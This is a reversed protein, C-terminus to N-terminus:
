RTGIDHFIDDSDGVFELYSVSDIFHSLEAGVIGHRKPNSGCNMLGHKTLQEEFYKRFLCFVGRFVLLIEAPQLLSVLAEHLKITQRTVVTISHSPTPPKPQWNQLSSRYVDGMINILKSFIQNMHDQIDTELNNIQDLLLHQSKPLQMTFINRVWPLLQLVVSLSQSAIGLHKATITKLGINKIAGAKLVLHCTGENFHKLNEVTKTLIDKSMVPIDMVCQCYEVVIKIVLLLTSTVIYKKGSFLLSNKPPDGVSNYSPRAVVESPSCNKVINDVMRQFDAPVDAAVWRETELLLKINTLREQHFQKVLERSQGVLSARIPHSSKNTLKECTVAFNEVLRSLKIHNNQDLRENAATHRQQRLTLIKICQSQAIECSTILVDNSEAMMRTYDAESLLASVDPDKQSNLTSKAHDSFTELLEEPVPKNTASTIVCKILKNTIGMKTLLKTIGEFVKEILMVATVPPLSRIQEDLKLDGEFNVDYLQEAIIQKIKAKMMTNSESKYAQLFNVNKRRLLGFLVCIIRDTDDEIESFTKDDITLTSLTFKVFDAEIMNYIMREMECLQVDLHRFSKIGNLDDHLVEQTTTILDLAGVFDSQSLLLQITPQAQKVTSMLVLKEHCQKYRERLRHLHLIQLSQKNLGTDVASLQSRLNQIDSRIYRADESLREQSSITEFFKHSKIDVQEGLKMEVKDLCHSLKEQLLKTSRQPLGANGVFTKRDKQVEIQTQSEFQSQPLVYEFTEPDSLRFDPKLFIPDIDVHEGSKKRARAIAAMEKEKARVKKYPGLLYKLYPIFHEPRVDPPLHKSPLVPTPVFYSGWTKTFMDADYNKSRRAPDNLISTMNSQHRGRQLEPIPSEPRSNEARSSEARSSEAVSSTYLSSDLSSVSERGNDIYLGSDVSQVKRLDSTLGRTPSTVPTSAVSESSLRHNSSIRTLTSTRKPLSEVSSSDSRYLVNKSLSSESGFPNLSNLSGLNQSSASKSSSFPNHSSGSNSSGFPNHSSSSTTSGFPNIGGGSAARQHGRVTRQPSSPTSSSSSRFPNRSDDSSEDFPNKGTVNLKNKQSTSNNNSTNYLQKSM